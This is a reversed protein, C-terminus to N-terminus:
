DVGGQHNLVPHAKQNRGGNAFAIDRHSVIYGTKNAGKHRGVEGHANKVSKLGLLAEGVAGQGNAVKIPNVTAVLGHQGQQARFSLVPTQGAAHQRELGMWSIVKCAQRLVGMQGRGANGGQSVFQALQGGAADVLAHYQGEIFFQGAAAGLIKHAV